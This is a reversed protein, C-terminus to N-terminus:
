LHISFEIRERKIKESGTNGTFMVPQNVNLLKEMLYGFRVTDQTPVLIEFYPTEPNYEFNPIIKLWQEMRKNQVDIYMDWLDAATSLSDLIM